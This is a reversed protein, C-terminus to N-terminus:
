NKKVTDQSVVHNRTALHDSTIDWNINGKMLSCGVIFSLLVGALILKGRM